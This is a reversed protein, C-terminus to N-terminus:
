SAKVEITTHMNGVVADQKKNSDSDSVFISINICFFIM